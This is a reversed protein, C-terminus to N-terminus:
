KQGRSGRRDGHGGALEPRTGFDSHRARGCAACGRPECGPNGPPSPRVHDMNNLIGCTQHNTLAGIASKPSIPEPVRSWLPLHFFGFIRFVPSSSHGIQGSSLPFLRPDSRRVGWPDRVRRASIPPARRPTEDNMRHEASNRRSPDSRPSANSSIGPSRKSRGTVSWGPRITSPPARLPSGFLELGARYSAKRVFASGKKIGKSLWRKVVEPGLTEAHIRILDLVGASVAATSQNDGHDQLFFESIVGELPEGLEEVLARVAHRKLGPHLRGVGGYQIDFYTHPISMWEAGQRFSARLAEGRERIRRGEDACELIGRCFERKLDRPIGDFTMMEDFVRFPARTHIKSRAVAVLVAHLDWAELPKWNELILRSLPLLDDESIGQFFSEPTQVALRALGSPNVPADVGQRELYLWSAGMGPPGYSENPEPEGIQLFYWATRAAIEPNGEKLVRLTVFGLPDPSEFWVAPVNGLRLGIDSDFVHDEEYDAFGALALRLFEQWDAGDLGLDEKLERLARSDRPHDARPTRKKAKAMLVNENHTVSHSVM